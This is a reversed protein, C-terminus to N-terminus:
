APNKKLYDNIFDASKGWGERTSKETMKEIMGGVGFVKAEMTIEVVRTVTGDSKPEIKM